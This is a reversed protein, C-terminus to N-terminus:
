PLGLKSVLCGSVHIMIDVEEICRRRGSDNGAM